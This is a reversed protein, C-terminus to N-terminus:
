EVCVEFSHIPTAGLYRAWGPRGRGHIAKCGMLKAEEKLASLTEKWQESNIDAGFLIIEMVSRQGYRTIATVGAGILRGDDGAVGYLGWVGNDLQERVQELSWDKDAGETMADVLYPEVQSWTGPWRSNGRVLTTM